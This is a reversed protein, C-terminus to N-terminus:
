NPVNISTGAFGIQDAVLPAANIPPVNAAAIAPAAGPIGGRPTTRVLQSPPLATGRQLHAYMADMARIFYLHLPM